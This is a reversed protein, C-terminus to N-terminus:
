KLLKAPRLVIHRLRMDSVVGTITIISGKTAQLIRKEEDQNGPSVYSFSGLMNANSQGQILYTKGNRQIQSVVIEWTVSKGLLNKLTEEQKVVTTNTDPWYIHALEKLSISSKPANELSYNGAPIEQPNGGMAFPSEIYQIFLSSMLVCSLLLKSYMEM